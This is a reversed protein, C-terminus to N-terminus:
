RSSTLSNIVNLFDLASGFKNSSHRSTAVDRLFVTCALPATGYVSAYPFQTGFIFFLWHSKSLPTSRLTSYFSMYVSNTSSVM